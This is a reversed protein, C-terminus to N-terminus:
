LPMIWNISCHGRWTPSMARIAYRLERMAAAQEPFNQLFNPTRTSVIPRQCMLYEAIKCSASTGLLSSRRYPIAVVDCANIYAPIESHPVLGRFIVWKFQM